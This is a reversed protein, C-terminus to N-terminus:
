FFYKLFILIKFIKCLSLSPFIETCPGPGRGAEGQRRWQNHLRAKPNIKVLGHHPDVIIERDTTDYWYCKVLFVRTQESHYQLEIVEEL